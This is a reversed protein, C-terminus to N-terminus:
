HDETDSYAKTEFEGLNKLYFRLFITTDEAGSSNSRLDRDFYAALGFCDDEYGLGFRSSRLGKSASSLDYLASASITWNEVFEYTMSAALQERSETFQTGPAGREYLYATSFTTKEIETGAYLEHRKSELTEGDLQFRYNFNHKNDDFSASISGVYDSIQNELGSGNQFPNDHADLRYSQGIFGTVSNGNFHHYGLDLGYSVHTRDEVRDLGPFRDKEFLNGADLRADISDENPIDENNKLDPRATLSIKPKMRIQSTSLTKHM